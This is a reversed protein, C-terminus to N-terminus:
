GGILKFHNIEPFRSKLLELKREKVYEEFLADKLKEILEGHYMYLFEEYGDGERPSWRSKYTTSPKEYIGLHKRMVDIQDKVQKLEKNM